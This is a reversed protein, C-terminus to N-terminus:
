IELNAFFKDCEVCRSGRGLLRRLPPYADPLMASLIFRDPRGSSTSHAACGASQRAASTCASDVSRMRPDNMIATESFDGGPTKNFLMLQFVYSDSSRLM